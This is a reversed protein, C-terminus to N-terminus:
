PLSQTINVQLRNHGDEPHLSDFLIPEVRKPSGPAWNTYSVARGGAWVFSLESLVDNLGIWPDYFVDKLHYTLFAPFFFFYFFPSCTKDDTM